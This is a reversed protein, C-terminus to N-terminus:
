FHESFIIDKSISKNPRVPCPSQLRSSFKLAEWTAWHYLIQRGICSVRSVPSGDRPWSSERSSSIAVWELIRAQLIGHVSTELVKWVFVCLIFLVNKIKCHLVKFLVCDREAFRTNQLMGAHTSLWTQSEAVGHVAARWSGRDMPNGLCSYQLPTGNGVGPSRGLEHTSGVDRADGANTPLNKVVLAM